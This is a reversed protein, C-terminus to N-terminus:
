QSGPATWDTTSNSADSWYSLVWDGADPVNVAPTTHEFVNKTSDEIATQVPSITSVGSYVATSAVAKVATAANVYQVAVQRGADNADATKSYIVTRTTDTVDTVINWGALPTLTGGDLVVGPDANTHGSVAMVITDGAQIGNPLNWKHTRAAGGQYASAARFSIQSAIPAVTVNHQTQGTAGDNDTVTLTVPYTNGNPFVHNPTAGNVTGSGDGFDWSYSAVTGDSDTSTTADFSCSLGVCQETFAATPNANPAQISPQTSLFLGKARWDIANNVPQSSGVFQGAASFQIKRLEGTSTVYYLQDGVLFAGRITDAGIATVSSSRLQSFSTAGVVDSEPTFYRYFLGGDNNSQQGGHGTSKTTSLRTYYLRGTRSDYFMSSLRGQNATTTSNNLLDATLLKSTDSGTYAGKVNITNQAGLNNGDFSQEKFTGDNWGTYLTNNVMFAGRVNAWNFGGSGLTVPAPTTTNVLYRSSVDAGVVNDADLQVVDGPVTGLKDNPLPLGGQWPFAALRDRREAPSGWWATDSGAWLETNTVFFDFVGVGRTRTPDWSFPMGNRTDLAALGTRAVGGPGASRGDPTNQNNWWRFHGGVYAVPGTVEVAWSTDGGTFSTWSPNQSGAGYTEWRSATDCMRTTGGWGGTTVIVFFSGDPALDVDHMYTDWSSGCANGTFVSTTWSDLTATPGSTNLMAVQVRSSGGVNNFNGIAVLRDGTPTVDIKRVASVGFGQATGTFPVNVKDTLAGTTADLTAIGRRDVGGVNKFSGSVYLTNGNLKVDYVRSSFVANQFSSLKTGDSLQIAQLRAPGAGNIKTYSGGVYVANGAPNSAVVDVSPIKGAGAELVPNFSSSVAGTNANFAFIGTRNLTNGTTADIVSTFTGGVVVTDGIRVISQVQGDQVRPTYNAPDESALQTTAPAASAASIPLLVGTTVAVATIVAWARGRGTGSGTRRGNMTRVGM